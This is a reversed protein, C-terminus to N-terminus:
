ARWYAKGFAIEQTGQLHHGSITKRLLLINLDRCVLFLREKHLWHHLSTLPKAKKEPSKRFHKM